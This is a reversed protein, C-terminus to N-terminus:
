KEMPDRLDPCAREESVDPGDRTERLELPDVDVEMEQWAKPDQLETPDTCVQPVQLAEIEGREERETSGLPDRAELVALCAM